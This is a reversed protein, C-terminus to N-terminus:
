KQGCPVCPSVVRFAGDGKDTIYARGAGIDPSAPEFRALAKKLYDRQQRTLSGNQVAEELVKDRIKQTAPWVKGLDVGLDEALQFITLGQEDAAKLDEVPIGFTEALATSLAEILRGREAAEPEYQAIGAAIEQAASASSTNGVAALPVPWGPGQSRDCGDDACHGMSWSLARTSPHTGCGQTSEWDWCWLIWVNCYRISPGWRWGTAIDYRTGAIQMASQEALMWLESESRLSVLNSSTDWWTGLSPNRFDGYYMCILGPIDICEPAKCSNHFSGHAVKGVYVVPAGGPLAEFGGPLRTYHGSHQAYVVAQVDTRDPTTCVIIHEWDGHHAGDPGEPWLNCPRQWGYYWWYAILLRGNDLSDVDSIVKFYTPVQGATLLSFNNNRMGWNWKDRGHCKDPGDPRAYFVIHNAPFSPPNVDPWMIRNFYANAAMPLENGPYSGDFGVIPAFKHVSPLSTVELYVEPSYGAAYLMREAEIIDAVGYINVLIDYAVEAACGANRLAQAATNPDTIGEVAEMCSCAVAKLVRTATADNADFVNKLVLDIDKCCCDADKLIHATDDVDTAFLGELASGIETCPCAISKLSVATSVANADFFGSLVSAIEMCSCGSLRLTLVTAAPDDYDDSIERLNLALDICSCGVDKLLSLASADYATVMAGTLERCNCDPVLLLPVDAAHTDYAQALAVARETCSCDVGKLIAVAGVADHDFADKMVRGIDTCSCDMDKLISATDSDSAGFAKVMAVGAEACSCGGTKLIGVASAADTDFLYELVLGADNCDFCTDVLITTVQQADLNFESTIIRAAGIATFGLECLVRTRIVPNNDISFAIPISSGTRPTYEVSGLHLDLVYFHIELMQGVDAKQPKWNVHYRKGQLRVRQLGPGSDSTFEAVSNGDPLPKSVSVTVFDLLTADPDSSNGSQEGVPRQVHLSSSLSGENAIAKGSLVPLLVFFVACIIINAKGSM